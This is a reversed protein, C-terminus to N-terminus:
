YKPVKGKTVNRNYHQSYDEGELNFVNSLDGDSDKDNEDEKNDVKGDNQAEYDEMDIAFM